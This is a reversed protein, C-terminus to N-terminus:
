RGHGLKQYMRPRVFTFSELFGRGSVKSKEFIQNIAGFTVQANSEMSQYSM